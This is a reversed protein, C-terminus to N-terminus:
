EVKTATMPTLYYACYHSGYKHDRTLTCTGHSILDMAETNM